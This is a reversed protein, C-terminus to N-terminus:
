DYEACMVLTNMLGAARCASKLNGSFKRTRGNDCPSEDSTVAVIFRSCAMTYSSALWRRLNTAWASKGSWSNADIVVDKSEAKM